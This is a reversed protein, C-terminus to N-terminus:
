RCLPFVIVKFDPFFISSEIPSILLMLSANNLDRHYYKKLNMSIHIRSQKSLTLILQLLERLRELLIKLYLFNPKIYRECCTSYFTLM